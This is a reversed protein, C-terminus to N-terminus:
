RGNADGVLIALAIAICALAAPPFAIAAWRYPLLPMGSKRALGLVALAIGVLLLTASPLM